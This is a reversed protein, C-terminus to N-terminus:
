NNQKSMLVLLGCTTGGNRCHAPVPVATYIETPETVACKLDKTLKTSNVTSEADDRKNGLKRKQAQSSGVQMKEKWANYTTHKLQKWTNTILLGFFKQIYIELMISYNKLIEAEM